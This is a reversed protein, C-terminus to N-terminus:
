TYFDVNWKTYTDWKNFPILFTGKKCLKCKCIICFSM